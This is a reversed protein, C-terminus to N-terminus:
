DSLNALYDEFAKKAAFEDGMLKKQRATLADIEKEQDSLKKLYVQYVDAERPTSALNKRIRDQDANLRSLDEKVHGLERKHEEWLGKLKLADALKTKLAPTAENLSIFYRIQDDPTNSLTFNAVLDREETVTFTKEEGAKVAVQFRYVDKTDEVPKDTEVLKFQQNTRNPHEIVLQRDTQGRNAIRYKRQERVKTTTAVVGKIAQVKTVKATGPGTQPDVETGLDIAYSVLREENPQVDLVRTDGAYISGEFVTIPGQNLHLGSTNKLRVGLLPHKPQVAPNYISVRQAEVDKGVIPLMASKQRALSVPHDIVYQFSDGLKGATAASAVAASDLRDSLEKGVKAAHERGEAEGGAAPAPRLTSGMRPATYVSRNGTNMGNGFQGQGQIGLQGNGLNQGNFFPNAYQGGFNPNGQLGGGFGGQFGGGAIGGGPIAPQGPQQAPARNFGGDYTPPRLSAFTEPEVVPRPVYLPDYLDMKFSIPRGSVLAMKVGTWDEDTPNEVMAWGQLYPKGKNAADLVLRYSTKWIPAEVVYGVQVKRKGEGAFHLSVAKKQSDHGLSVVELARRFENEIVPNSFRLQQVDSLKVSRLGEACWLNLIETETVTPGAATTHVEVGVITGVLKGPQNAATPVVTVEVREGRAQQLIQAYTPNSSLDIAFSSLTRAIPERSDYSVAAVRGGNLDDLVMSKLLDSVDDEAFSLDVRADGDVEGGRTFYGVGSNFLVVRAVPLAVAPKVDRDGPAARLGPGAVLETAWAGVAAVGLVCACWGLKRLLM